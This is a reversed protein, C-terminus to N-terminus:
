SLKSRYILYDNGPEYKEFGTNEYLRQAGYNDFATELQIFEAAKSAAFEKATKILAQGVGQKRYPVAVFLDNLVWNRVARGSSILPYLQTFGVATHNAMAAFIVSENNDLRERIFNEALALDSPKKYFVRYDNFLSTVLKYEPLTIRKIEM